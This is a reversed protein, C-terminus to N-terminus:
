NRLWVLILVAANIKHLLPKKRANTENGNRSHMSTWAKETGINQQM